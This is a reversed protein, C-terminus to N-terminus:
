LYSVICPKLQTTQKVVLLFFCTASLYILGKQSWISSCTIIRDEHVEAEENTRGMKKPPSDTNSLRLQLHPKVCLCM